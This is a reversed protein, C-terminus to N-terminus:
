KLLYHLEHMRKSEDAALPPGAKRKDKPDPSADTMSVGWKDHLKALEDRLATTDAPAATDTATAPDAKAM